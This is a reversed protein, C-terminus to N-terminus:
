PPATSSLRVATTTMGVAGITYPGPPINTPLTLTFQLPNGTPQAAPLPSQTTYLSTRFLPIPLYPSGARQLGAWVPPSTIQLLQAFASPAISFVFLVTLAYFSIRKGSIVKRGGFEKSHSGRLGEEV